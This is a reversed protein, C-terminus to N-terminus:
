KTSKNQIQIKLQIKIKYKIVWQGTGWRRLYNSKKYVQTNQIWSNTNQIKTKGTVREKSFNYKKCTNTKIHTNQKQTKCKQGIQVQRDKWFVRKGRSEHWVNENKEEVTLLYEIPEFFHWRRKPFSIKM